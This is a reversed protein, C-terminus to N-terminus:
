RILGLRLAKLVAQHADACALKGAAHAIHMQVTCESLNLIAGVEWVTKGEMTWRLVDIEQACLRPINAHQWRPLLVRMAAEQAYVAFLQLQAVIRSLEGRDDPLAQDRDVGLVFHRGEPMHLALCIGARYGFQAQKIQGAKLYTAQNWLIPAHHHKCHQM